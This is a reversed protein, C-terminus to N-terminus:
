ALTQRESSVGATCLSFLRNQAACRGCARSRNNCLGMPPMKDCCRDQSPGMMSDQLGKLCLNSHLSETPVAAVLTYRRPAMSCLM